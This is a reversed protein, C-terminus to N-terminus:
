QMSMEMFRSFVDSYFPLRKSKGFDKENTTVFTMAFSSIVNKEQSTRSPINIFISIYVTAPV